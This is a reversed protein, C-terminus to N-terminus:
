RIDGLPPHSQTTGPPLGAASGPATGRVREGPGPARDATSVPNM